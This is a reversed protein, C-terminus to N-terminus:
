RACVSFFIDRCQSRFESHEQAIKSRYYDFEHSVRDFDEFIEKALLEFDSVFGGATADIKFREPIPIDISNAASGERGTVICAGALAAERPMRDKGPHHGFDMYLKVKSLLSQVERPSMNEIPIFGVNPMARILTKSFDMGKRPNFAIIDARSPASGNGDPPNIYDGLMRSSIGYENLHRRAYESQVYHAFGKMAKIPTRSIYSAIASPVIARWGSQKPINYYNYVSLWWISVSMNTFLGALKTASEPLVLVDGPSNSPTAQKIRYKEYAEPTNFKRDFPYYSIFADLGLDDLEHVLQHLLEPGGTVVGGPCVVFIRHGSM